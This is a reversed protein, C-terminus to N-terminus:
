SEIEALAYERSKAQSRLVGVLSDVYDYVKPSKDDAPRLIRGIVQMLRGKFRVPTTLFLTSLNECDFGEGLLQVTSVLAQIKGAQVEQVIREREARKTQGTLLETCIGRHDLMKALEACHAVRDSVILAVGRTSESVVDNVIQQNRDKDETLATLMEQYDDAYPYYFDTERKIVKPALIDGNEQLEEQDVEHVKDGLTFYILKTLKDRRYTTASLGLMFYADFATVVETFMTSPTRHCEDVIIHGFYGPLEDLHKKATNVVAVTVPGINYKGDGILGPTVDLFKRIQDRWQNLLERSHVLILTPQKRVAIIKLAMITKGSGTPAGLVGFGRKIVDQVAKQQYDRLMGRFKFEIPELARRNDVIEPEIGKDQLLKLANRTWGRPFIIGSETDEYLYIYEDIDGTYRGYKEAEEFKPNEITFVKQIYKKTRLDPNVLQAKNNVIIQTKM